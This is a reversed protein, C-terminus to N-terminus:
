NLIWYPVLVGVSHSVRLWRGIDTMGLGSNEKYSIHDYFGFGLVRIHRTDRGDYISIRLGGKVWRITHVDKANISTEMPSQLVM